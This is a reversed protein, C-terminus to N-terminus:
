AAVIPGPQPAREGGSGGWLKELQYTERTDRQMVHVIVDCLDVLVWEGRDMGEVGLPQVGRHKAAEVVKQALAKVQRDSRGTAIVMYDTMETLARVDLSMIDIGKTDDLTAVVLDNLAESQM